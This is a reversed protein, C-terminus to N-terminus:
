RVNITFEHRYFYGAATVADLVMRDAGTFGAESQYHILIAPVKRDNCRARVNDREFYPFTEGNEIMVEGHEPPLVVTVKGLGLSSCDPNISMYSRIFQKGGAVAGRVFTESVPPSLRAGGDDAGAHGASAGVVAAATVSWVVMAGIRAAM